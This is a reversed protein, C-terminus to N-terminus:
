GPPILRIGEQAMSHALGPDNTQGDDAELGSLASLVLFAAPETTRLKRTRASFEVVGRDILRFVVEASAKLALVVFDLAQLVAEMLDITVNGEWASGVENMHDLVLFAAMSLSVSHDGIRYTLAKDPGGTGSKQARRAIFRLEVDLKQGFDGLARETFM